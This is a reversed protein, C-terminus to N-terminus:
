YKSIGKGKLTTKINEPIDIAKVYASGFSRVLRTTWTHENNFVPVLRCYGAHSDSEVLCVSWAIMTDTKSFFPEVDLGCLIFSPFNTATKDVYYQMKRGKSYDVIYRNTGDAAAGYLEYDVNIGSVYFKLKFDFTSKVTM